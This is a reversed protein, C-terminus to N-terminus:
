FISYFLIKNFMSTLDFFTLNFHYVLQRPTLTVTGATLLANVLMEAEAQCVPLALDRKFHGVFRDALGRYGQWVCYPFFIEDSHKPASESKFCDAIIKSFMPLQLAVPKAGVNGLYRGLVDNIMKPFDQNTKLRLFALRSHNLGASHLSTILVRCDHDLMEPEMTSSLKSYFFRHSILVDNKHCWM